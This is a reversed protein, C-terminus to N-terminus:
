AAGKIDARLPAGFDVESVGRALPLGCAAGGHRGHTNSGPADVPVERVASRGAARECRRRVQAHAGRSCAWWRTAMRSGVVRTRAGGFAMRIGLGADM